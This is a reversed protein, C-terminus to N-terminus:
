LHLNMLKIIIIFMLRIFWDKEPLLHNNLTFYTVLGVGFSLCVCNAHLHLHLLKGLSSSSGLNFNLCLSPLVPQCATFHTCQIIVTARCLAARQGVRYLTLLTVSYSCPGVLLQLTDQRLKLSAGFTPRRSSTVAAASHPDSHNLASSSNGWHHNLSGTLVGEPHM